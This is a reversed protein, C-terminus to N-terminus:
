RVIRYYIIGNKRKIRIVNGRKYNYFRAIPDTIKMTGYKGWQKKFDVAENDDLKEFDPQLRHKTINYKLDEEAFLEITMPPFVVGKITIETQEMLEVTQVAKPTAKEKYIAIIHYVDLEKMMNMYEFLTSIKFQAMDQLFVYFIDGEPKVAGIRDEEELFIEYGRQQILELCTQYVQSAM